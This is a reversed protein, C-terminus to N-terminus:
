LNRSPTTSDREQQRILEAYIGGLKKLGDHTGLQFVLIIWDNINMLVKM